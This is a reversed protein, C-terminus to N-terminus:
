DALQFDHLLSQHGAPTEGFAGSKLDELLKVKDAGWVFTGRYAQNESAKTLQVSPIPAVRVEGIERQVKEIEPSLSKWSPNMFTWSFFSCNECGDTLVQEPTPLRDYQTQWEVVGAHYNWVRDHYFKELIKTAEESTEFFQGVVYPQQSVFGAVKDPPFSQMAAPGLDDALRNFLTGNIVITHHGSALRQGEDSINQMVWFGKNYTSLLAEALDSYGGVVLDLEKNGMVQVHGTPKFVSALEPRKVVIPDTIHTGYHVLSDDGTIRGLVKFLRTQCVSPASLSVPIEVFLFGLWVIFISLKM